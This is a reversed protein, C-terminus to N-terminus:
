VYDAPTPTVSTEAQRLSALQAPLDRRWKAVLGDFVSIVVSDSIPQLECCCPLDRSLDRILLVTLAYFCREFTDCLAGTATAEANEDPQRGEAHGRYYRGIARGLVLIAIDRKDM